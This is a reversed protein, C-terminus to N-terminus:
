YKVYRRRDKEFVDLDYKYDDYTVFCPVDGMVITEYLKQEKESYNNFTTVPGECGTIWPECESFTIKFLLATITGPVFPSLASTFYQSEGPCTWKNLFPSSIHIVPVCSQRVKVKCDRSYRFCPMYQSLPM